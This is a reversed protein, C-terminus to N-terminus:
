DGSSINNPEEIEKMSAMPPPGCSDCFQGSFELTVPVDDCVVTSSLHLSYGTLRGLLATDGSCGEATWDYIEFRVRGDQSITGSGGLGFQTSGCELNPTPFYLANDMTLMASFRGGDQSSFALASDCSREWSDPGESESRLTVPGLYVGVISPYSPETPGDNGCAVLGMSLLGATLMTARYSVCCM